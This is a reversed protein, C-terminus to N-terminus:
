AKKGKGTVIAKGERNYYINNIDVIRASGGSVADLADSSIENVNQNKILDFAKKLKEDSAFTIGAEEILKKFEDLSKCNSANKIAAPNNELFEKLTM